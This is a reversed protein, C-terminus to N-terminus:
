LAADFLTANYPYTIFRDQDVLTLQNDNREWLSLADITTKSGDELTATLDERNRYYM